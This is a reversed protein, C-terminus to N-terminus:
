RRSRAAGRGGAVTFLRRLMEEAFPASERSLLVGGFGGLGLRTLGVYFSLPDEVYLTGGGMRPPLSAMLVEERRPPVDIACLIRLAERYTLPASKEHVILTAGTPLSFLVRRRIPPDTADSVRRARIELPTEPASPTLLFFAPLVDLLALRPLHRLFASDSLSLALYMGRADLASMLHTLASLLRDPLTAGLPLLLGTYGCRALDDALGDFSFIEGTYIRPAALAPLARAPSAHLHSFGRRTLHGGRVLQISPPAYYLSSGSIDPAEKCLLLEGREESAPPYLCGADRGGSAGIPLLVSIAPPLLGRHPEGAWRAIDRESAGHARAISRTTELRTTQCIRM